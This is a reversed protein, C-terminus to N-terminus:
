QAQALSHRLQDLRAEVMRDAGPPAVHLVNGRIAAIMAAAIEKPETTFTQRNPPVPSSDRHDPTLYVPRNRVSDGIATRVGGPCVVTVGVGPADRDLEARLIESLVVVGHKAVSYPALGPIVGLGAGSSVNV